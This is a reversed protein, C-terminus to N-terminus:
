NLLKWFSINQYWLFNILNFAISTLRKIAGRIYAAERCCLYGCCGTSLAPESEYSCLCQRRHVLVCHTCACLVCRIGAPLFTRSTKSPGGHTGQFASNPGTQVLNLALQFEWVPFNDRFPSFNILILARSPQARAQSTSGLYTVTNLGVISTTLSQM